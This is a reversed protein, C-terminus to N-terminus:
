ANVSTVTWAVICSMYVAIFAVMLSDCVDDAEKEEEIGWRTRERMAREIRRKEKRAAKRAVKHEKLAYREFRALRAGLREPSGFTKANHMELKQYITLDSKM